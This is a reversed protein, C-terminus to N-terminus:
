EQSKMAQYGDRYSDSAPGSIVTHMRCRPGWTNQSQSPQEQTTVAASKRRTGRVELQRSRCCKHVIKHIMLYSTSSALDNDIAIMITM